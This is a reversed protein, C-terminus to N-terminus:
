AKQVTDTLRSIRYVNNIGSLKRLELICKNLDETSHVLLMVTAEFVEGTSDIHFSRINLGMQSSIINVIDNLLGKNDFGVLRLGSLFTGAESSTWNIKVIRNGYKSMLQIAEPCNTRHIWIGGDPPVFGIVEDGPIPNCCDSIRYEVETNINSALDKNKLKQKVEDVFKPPASHRTRSFPRTLINLWGTKDSQQLSEKIEKIGLEGKAVRYYLDIPSSIQVHEQL